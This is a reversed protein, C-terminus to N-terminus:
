KDCITLSPCVYTYIYEGNNTKIMDLWARPSTMLETYLRQIIECCGLKISARATHYLHRTALKLSKVQGMGFLGKGGGVRGGEGRHGKVM